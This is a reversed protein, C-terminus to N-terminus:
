GWVRSAAPHSILIKPHDEDTLLEEAEKKKRLREAAAKNEAKIKAIAEPSDKLLPKEEVPTLGAKKMEVKVEEPSLSSLRRYEAELLEEETPRPKFPDTIRDKPFETVVNQQRVREAAELKIKLKALGDPQKGTAKIYGKTLRAIWEALTLKM